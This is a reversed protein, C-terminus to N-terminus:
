EDPTILWSEMGFLFFGDPLDHPYGEGTKLAQEILLNTEKFAYVQRLVDSKDGNKTDELYLIVGIQRSGNSSFTSSVQDMWDELEYFDKNVGDTSAIIDRRAPDYPMVYHGGIILRYPHSKGYKDFFVIVNEYGDEVETPDSKWGEEYQLCTIVSVTRRVKDTSTKFRVVQTPSIVGEVDKFFYPVPVLEGPGCLHYENPILTETPLNILIKTQTVQPSPLVESDIEPTITVEGLAQDTECSCLLIVLFFGIISVFATRKM